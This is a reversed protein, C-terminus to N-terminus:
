RGCGQPIYDDEDVPPLLPGSQRPLRYLHPPPPPVHGFSAAAPPPGHGLINASPPPSRYPPPLYPQPENSLYVQDPQQQQQQQEEPGDLLLPTAHHIDVETSFRRLPNMQLLPKTYLSAAADPLSGHPSENSSKLSPPRGDGNQPPLLSEGLQLLLQDPGGNGSFCM